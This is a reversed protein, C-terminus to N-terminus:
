LGLEFIVSLKMKHGSENLVSFYMAGNPIEVREQSDSVHIDGVGHRGKPDQWFRIWGITLAPKRDHHERTGLLTAIKAFKPVDLVDSEERNDVAGIFITRQVHAEAFGPGVHAALYYAASTGFVDNSHRTQTVLARVRLYSAIVSLTMGNMYDVTVKTNVGGTGFEIVAELPPWRIPEDTEPFDLPSIESNTQEGTLNQQDLREQVASFPLPIVRPPHLSLILQSADLDDGTLEIMDVGAEQVADVRHDYILISSKGLNGGMALRGFPSLGPRDEGPRAPLGAGPHFADTHLARPLRPDSPQEQGQGDFSRRDWLAQAQQRLALASPLRPGDLLDEAGSQVQTRLSRPIARLALTPNKTM